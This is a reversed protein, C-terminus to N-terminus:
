NSPKQQHLESKKVRMIAYFDASFVWFIAISWAWMCNLNLSLANLCRKPDKNFAVSRFFQFRFYFGPDSFDRFVWLSINFMRKKYQYINYCRYCRFHFLVQFPFIDLTSYIKGVSIRDCSACDVSSDLVFELM